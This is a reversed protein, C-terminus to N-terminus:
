DDGRRGRLVSALVERLKARAKHLQSKSTGVSCGRAVAIEEHEMELVDHMIVVERYGEPLGGLAANLQKRAWVRPEEEQVPLQSGKEDLPSERSARRKATKMRNLAITFLWTRFTSRFDFGHLSQFARVFTEQTIEDAVDVDGTAGYALAHIAKGHRRYLSEMARQDGKQADVVLPRDPDSSVGAM